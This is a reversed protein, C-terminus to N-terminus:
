NLGGGNSALRYSRDVDRQYPDDNFALKEGNWAVTLYTIFVPVPEPLTVIQEPRSSKAAPMEGFLWIALREADEVRVCGSSLNRVDQSFLAKNNTDHLYVGSDNAFTFKVAGMANGPGPRQRVRLEQRGAAVANWDVTQPDVPLADESWGSLLEYNKARLYGVGESLVAAAIQKRVLDPPVNWYPNLVAARIVSALMPTQESPKGVIVRMSDRAEGDEYLWLRASAADVLVYRGSRGAPLARARDLNLKLTREVERPDRGPATARGDRWAALADRMQSYVPNPNSVTEIHRALSPARAAMDLIAAGSLARPLVARDSYDMGTRAPRRLAQVYGIWAESLLLEARSLAGPEGAEARAIAEEIRDALGPGGSLGDLESRRVIEAVRSAEPRLSAGRVWLPRYRTMGYFGRLEPDAASRLAAEMAPVATTASAATAVITSALLPLLAAKLALSTLTTKM